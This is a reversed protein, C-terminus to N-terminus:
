HSRPHATSQKPGHTKEMKRIISEILKKVNTIPVDYGRGPTLSDITFQEYDAKLAAQIQKTQAEMILSIDAKVARRIQKDSIM